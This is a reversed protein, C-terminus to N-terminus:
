SFSYRFELPTQNTKSKFLKNFSQPHEFGLQYAVESVSLNTTSLIEKATEILKNQIHQQTSQGTLVRLMDSLYDSSINLENAIYQVTPLGYQETKHTDFYDSLITEFKILVSNNNNKRTIFQREYFRNCYNLLLDIQSIIVSQTHKDINQYEKNINHFVGEIIAKEKESLHLAENVTYSFFGYEKISKALQHNQLFDPHFVLMLGSGADENKYDVSLVQRPSTFSMVGENFDYYQQGYKLKGACDKKIAITYFNLYFQEWIESPAYKMDAFNIVSVSPHFPKPLSLLSHFDSISNITNM